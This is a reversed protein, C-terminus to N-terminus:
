SLRCLVQPAVVFVLSPFDRNGLSEINGQDLNNGEVLPKSDSSGRSSDRGL